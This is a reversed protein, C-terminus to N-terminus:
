AGLQEGLFALTRKWADKAYEARYTDRRTNNFFAHPAEYTVVEGTKGYRALAARLRDVDAMTIWRDQTGYIYLIPCTLRRLAEDPDPVQGYFAVAARVGKRVCPLLLAYTGGMCFGVVAIRRRDVGPQAQLFRLAAGLDALADKPALHAMLREAEAPDKTVRHGQRSYLDPALAVFGQRAFRATVDQIHPNLGWWEQIVLIAPFPGRGRPRALFAQVRVRGSPFSVGRKSLAATQTAM